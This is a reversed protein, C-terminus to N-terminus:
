DVQVIWMQLFYYCATHIIDFCCLKISLYYYPYLCLYFFFLVQGEADVGWGQPIEKRETRTM